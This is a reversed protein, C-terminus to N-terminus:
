LIDLITDYVAPNDKIVIALKEKAQNLQHFLLRVNSKRGESTTIRTIEYSAESIKRARLYGDEDYYYQEDLVAVLRNVDRMAPNQYLYGRRAYGQMLCVAETDDNAYM